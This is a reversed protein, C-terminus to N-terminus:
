KAYGLFIPNHRDATNEYFGNTNHFLCTTPAHHEVVVIEILEDGHDIIVEKLPQKIWNFSYMLKLLKVKISVM